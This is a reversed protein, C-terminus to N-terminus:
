ATYALIVGHFASTALMSSIQQLAQSLRFERPESSRSGDLVTRFKFYRFSCFHLQESFTRKRAFYQSSAFFKFIVWLRKCKM